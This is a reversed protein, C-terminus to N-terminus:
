RSMSGVRVGRNASTESSELGGYIQIMNGLEM